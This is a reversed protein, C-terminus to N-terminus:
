PQVEAKGPPGKRMNIISIYTYQKCLLTNVDHLPEVLTNNMHALKPHLGIWNECQATHQLKM